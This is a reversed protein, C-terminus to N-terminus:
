NGDILKFLITEAAKVLLENISDTGESIALTEFVVITYDDVLQNRYSPPNPSQLYLILQNTLAECIGEMM